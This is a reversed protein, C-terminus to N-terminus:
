GVLRLWLSLEIRGLSGWFLGDPQLSSGRAHSSRNPFRNMRRDLEPSTKLEQCRREYFGASCLSFIMQCTFPVHSNFRILNAMLWCSYISAADIEHYNGGIKGSLKLCVTIGM